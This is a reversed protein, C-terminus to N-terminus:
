WSEADRFEILAVAGCSFVVVSIWTDKMGDDNKKNDKNDFDCVHGLGM